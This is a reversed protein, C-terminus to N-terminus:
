NYDDNFGEKHYQKGHSPADTILFLCLTHSLHYNFCKGENFAGIVDEALDGGGSARQRSIL